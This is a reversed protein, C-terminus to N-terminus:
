GDRGAPVEARVRTGGGPASQVEVRGGIYAAREQMGFLGLGGGDASLAEHPRFGRGDDTVTVVVAADERAVRVDARGARAHRVVNSLAEQVIRYVALEAEPPLVDEVDDAELGFAVGTSEGLM